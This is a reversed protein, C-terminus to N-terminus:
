LMGTNVCSDAKIKSRGRGAAVKSRTTPILPINTDEKGKGTPNVTHPHFSLQPLSPLADKDIVLCAM